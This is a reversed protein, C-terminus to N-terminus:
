RVFIRNEKVVKKITVMRIKKPGDFRILPNTAKLLERRIVIKM